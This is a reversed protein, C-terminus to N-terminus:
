QQSGMVAAAALEENIGPVFRIDEAELLERAQHLALDYGAVPSGRYGSIFGATRLGRARDLRRQALPLRVLAQTGTIFIRGREKLYRDELAYGEDVIPAAQAM